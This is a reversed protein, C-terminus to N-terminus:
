GSRRAGEELVPCADNGDGLGVAQEPGNEVGSDIIVQDPPVWALDLSRTLLVGGFTGHKCHRLDEGQRIRDVLAVASTHVEGDEVAEAPALQDREASAVQIEVPSGDTHHALEGLDRAVEGEPRRLGLRALPDHDQRIQDNGNEAPIQIVDGLGAIVRQDESARGALRQPV